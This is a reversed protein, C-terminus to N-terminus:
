RLSSSIVGALVRDTRFVHSAFVWDFLVFVFDAIKQVDQQVGDVDIDVVFEHFTCGGIGLDFIRIDYHTEAARFRIEKQGILAFQEQSELVEGHLHEAKRMFVVRQDDEIGVVIAQQANFFQAECGLCGCRFDFFTKLGEEEARHAAAFASDDV